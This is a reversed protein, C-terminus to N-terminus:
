SMKEFSSVEKAYLESDKNKLRNLWDNTKIKCYYPNHGVIPQTSKFIVGETLGFENEKVKEVFERSLKGQHVVRPIGLHQFDDVFPKPSIFGKKYASIDFLVTDFKDSAFSHQGFESLGGVLEAFCVFALTDRYTKSKFVDTIGKEYKSLFLDIAFGFPESKRDIMTNRTGFKYFGRKHSYEFRLNSGDLKDFAYGQVGWNKGYYDITDYQKM